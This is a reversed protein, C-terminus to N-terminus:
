QKPWAGMLTQVDSAHGDTTAALGQYRRSCDAFLENIATAYELVAAPPANSLRRAADASQERLSDSESRARDADLRLAAERTKSDNLAGQYKATIAKQESAAVAQARISDNAYQLRIEGIEATHRASEFAWAGAGALLASVLSLILTLNM